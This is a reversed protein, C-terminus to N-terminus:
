ASHGADALIVDAAKEGIMYVSTVIFFGPIKPFVSADVVRLATTGRVRFNSDLVAMPDDNSGIKCTCSAHHGWANNEVFAELGARDRVNEGPLEERLIIDSAGETLTRVFQVGAVVADLDQQGRNTGERFYHFNILPTDFPDTSRLAVTGHQNETHAKLVAWTMASHDEALLKSYKPFYGRFHGLLAFAFLDPLPRKPDSKKIVALAVGNTTYVGTRSTRWEKALPDDRAIKAHTLVQWDAKLRSIVGVEYRDQLNKGVGPLDVRVPIDYQELEARAGIGSLMLLQPTNFAGGALIVERSVDVTREEGPAPNVNASARYLREGKRYVVGIARNAEDFRVRTVLADLEITLHDPYRKAVDLLRERTGNRGHRYTSLPAYHIGELALKDIRWDNPDLKAVFGERLQQLPNKLEKFIKLACRKLIEILDRDALVSLPLAKETSLWGSFGHRTPNWRSVKQVFRWFPRHRCNELRVFYRRMNEANWSPDNVKEAIDDWDWNHPYIMMLANHATCGGLTGARPYLVGDVPNGNYDKGYKEDKQQRGLCEYHRVYFEWRLAENETSCAHFAPIEHDEPLRNEGQAGAPGGGKLLMPDGGAELVLVKRGAEALRAAVTGGGAGSGVVVYEYQAAKGM